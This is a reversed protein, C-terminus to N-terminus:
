HIKTKLPSKLNQCPECLLLISSSNGVTSIWKMLCNVRRFLCSCCCVCCLRRIVLVVFRHINEDNRKQNYPCTSLTISPCHPHLLDGQVPEACSTFLVCASHSPRTKKESQIFMDAGFSTFMNLLIRYQLRCNFIKYMRIGQFSVRLKKTRIERKHFFYHKM